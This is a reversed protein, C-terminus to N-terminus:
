EEQPKESVAIAHSDQKAPHVIQARRMVVLRWWLSSLDSLTKWLRRINFFQSKGYARHFHHVPGEAFRLGADQFSKIMEVCITGSTSSLRVRHYSARRVLRFDCDVDRIKIGFARRVIWCYINGLIIRHLPDSRSIKYGNVVDVDDSMLPVLTELERVDYQADGDTYFILEKSASDFGTRLASGYGRNAPHHIVKLRPYVSELESLVQATHDVSGDNVVIVEYDDTLKRLTRDALVVLSGITGADNYAPFFVSISAINRV